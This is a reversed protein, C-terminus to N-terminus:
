FRMHSAFGNAFAPDDALSVPHMSAACRVLADRAAQSRVLLAAGDLSSNGVAALRAGAGAPFFGLNELAAPDAFRGLAGALFVRRLDRFALGAHDLLRAMGLSFAAKVKLLEEVDSAYLRMGHPLELVEEGFANKVPTFFRRLPGCAEPTFRGDRDLANCQLLTHLLSLYGTGSIGPLPAASAAPPPLSSHAALGKPTLSFSTIAGPRAETGCATGIGELAPGLAVSTCLFKDPAIALLFEGNTGMDALLFPYAPPPATEDFLLSACGAAIDGGVFPSFQPPFWIPPFGEPTEWRGGSYPLSYPAAALGAPDIGLTICTMATNGALCVASVPGYRREARRLLTRLTSLTLQQLLRLGEPTRAAGVRSLVDSGAGMQPNVLVGGDLAPGDPLAGTEGTDPPRPADRLLRWHLSTTGLDVALLLPEAKKETQPVPPATRNEELPVIDDPLEAQLGPVAPHRCGLRMGRDLEEPTFSRLDADCPPPVPPTGDPGPVFRMRCRKCHALGSCLPPPSFCGSLYVAQAATQGPTCPIRFVTETSGCSASPEDAPFFEALLPTEPM